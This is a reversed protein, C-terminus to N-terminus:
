ADEDDELQALEDDFDDLPRESVIGRWDHSESRQVFQGITVLGAAVLAAKADGASHFTEAQQQPSLGAYIDAGTPRAVEQPAGAVEPSRICTCWPHSEMLEDWPHTDGDASGLCGACGGESGVVWVWGPFLDPAAGAQADVERRAADMVETSALRAAGAAGYDLAASASRGTSMAVFVTPGVAGLADVLSRGDTTTGAIRPSIGAADITRGIEATVKTRVFAATLGQARRQGVEVAAAASTIARQLSTRMDGTDASRIIGAVTLSTSRALAVQRQRVIQELALGRRTTM